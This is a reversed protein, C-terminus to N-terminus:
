GPLDSSLALESALRQGGGRALGKLRGVCVMQSAKLNLTSTDAEM